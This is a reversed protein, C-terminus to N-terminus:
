IGEEVVEEGEDAKVAGKVFEEIDGDVTGPVLPGKALEV